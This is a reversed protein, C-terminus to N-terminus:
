KQHNLCEQPLNVFPVLFLVQGFGDAIISDFEQV